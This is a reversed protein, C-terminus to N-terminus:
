DEEEESAVADGIVRDIADGIVRDIADGFQQGPFDDHTAPVRRQHSCRAGDGVV